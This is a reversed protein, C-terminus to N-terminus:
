GTQHAVREYLIRDLWLIDHDAIWERMAKLMPATEEKYNGKKKVRVERPVGYTDECYELFADYNDTRFLRFRELVRDIVSLCRRMEEPDDPPLMPFEVGWYKTLSRIQYNHTQGAIYELGRRDNTRTFREGSFNLLSLYQKEPERVMALMPTSVRESLAATYHSSVAQVVGIRSISDYADVLGQPWNGAKMFARKARALFSSSFGQSLLHKRLAGRFGTGGTKPVHHFFLPEKLIPGHAACSFFMEFAGSRSPVARILEAEQNAEGKGQIFELKLRRREQQETTTQDM